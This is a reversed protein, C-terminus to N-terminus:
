KTYARLCHSSWALVGFMIPAVVSNLGMYSIHLAVAGSMFSSLLVAGYISTRPYILLGLGVIEGLGIWKMYPLLKMFEFGKVMEESATVKSFASMGFMITAVVTLFWGLNKLTFLNKM